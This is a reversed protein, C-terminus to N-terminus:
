FEKRKIVLMAVGAASLVMLVLVPVLIFDDGTDSPANTASIVLSDKTVETKGEADAYTKGCSACAYHEKQGNETATAAKGAVKEISHCSPIVTTTVATKGEADSFNKKCVSCTYHEVVGDETCTAEKGSVKTLKHGHATEKVTDTEDCRDCKATKTGDATCTANGDSKYNTFSHDLKSGTDAVTNKEGCGHGCEATKTGDAECTADNNSVYNTYTHTLRSGTLVVVDTATCGDHDCQATKTGDADCTANDDDVYTTFSHSGVTGSISVTQYTYPTKVTVDATFAGNENATIEVASVTYDKGADVLQKNVMAAVQEALNDNDKASSVAYSGTTDIGLVVEVEFICAGPAYYSIYLKGDWVAVSQPEYAGVLVSLDIFRTFTHQSDSMDFTMLGTVSREWLPQVPGYTQLLQDDYYDAGQYLPGYHSLEYAPVLYDSVDLDVVLYELGSNQTLTGETHAPLPYEGVVWSNSNDSINGKKRMQFLIRNNGPDVVAQAGNAGAFEGMDFNIWQILESGIPNGQDDTIIREVYCAKTSLDGSSYFLPFRDDPDYKATGFMANGCHHEHSIACGMLWESIKEGTHLDFTMVYGGDYTVFIVDDYIDFAQMPHSETCTGENICHSTGSPVDLLKSVTVEDEVEYPTVIEPEEAEEVKITVTNTGTTRQTFFSLFDSDGTNQVTTTYNQSATNNSATNTYITTGSIAAEEATSHLKWATKGENDDNYAPASAYDVTYQYWQGDSLELAVWTHLWPIDTDLNITGEYLVGEDLTVEEVNVTINNAATLGATTLKLYDMAATATFTGQYYSTVDAAADADKKAAKFVLDGLTTSSLDSVTQLKWNALVGNVNPASDWQATVKYTKGAEFDYPFYYAEGAAVATKTGLASPTPLVPAVYKDIVIHVTNEESLYQTFLNFVSKDAASTQRGSATQDSVGSASKPGVYWDGGGGDIDSSGAPQIKWARVGNESHAPQNTWQVNYDYDSGNVFVADTFVNTYRTGAPLTVTVDVVRNDTAEVPEVTIAVSNDATIGAADLYLKAADETATFIVTANKAVKEGYTAGTNALIILDGDAATTGTTLKWGKQGAPFTPDSAWAATVKYTEGQEFNYALEEATDTTTVNVTQNLKKSEKSIVIHITNEDGLYQTFLNFVSSTAADTITGSATQDSVGNASKPGVYWGDGAGDVATSSVTQIKWARVGNTTHTPQNTWQVNYDYKKGATFTTGSYVNTYCTGAPLTVTIDVVRDEDAEVPEVKVTVSNDATIGAADLYLKTANKTATFIVTASKAVKDGYSAGTNALIVLDGDAATTGTTLKWGKQGAPFSPDNAWTATVKYAKGAEFTCALEEATDATTVNVSENLLVDSAPEVAYAWLPAIGILMALVLVFALTKKTLKKM